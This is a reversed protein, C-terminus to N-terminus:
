QIPSAGSERAVPIRASAHGFERKLLGRKPPFYFALTREAVVGEGSEIHLSVGVKLAKPKGDLEELPAWELGISAKASRKRGGSLVTGSWSAARSTSSASTLLPLPPEYVEDLAELLAFEGKAIYYRERELLEGFASLSIDLTSGEVGATLEVPIKTGALVLAADLQPDPLTAPAISQILNEGVDGGKPQCGFLIAALALM